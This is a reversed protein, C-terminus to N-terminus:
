TNLVKLPWQILLLNYYKLVILQDVRGVWLWPRYYDNNEFINDTRGNMREDTRGWKESRAFCFLLFCHESSAHSHTQSLPDNIVGTQHGKTKVFGPSILSFNKHTGKDKDRARPKQVHLSFQTMKYPGCLSRDVQHVHVFLSSAICHLPGGLVYRM